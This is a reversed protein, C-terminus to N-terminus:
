LQGRMAVIPSAKMAVHVPYLWGLFALLVSLALCSGINSANLVTTVTEGGFLQILLTNSVHIGAHSIAASALSGFACGIIGSTVTLIATEFLFQLAVFGRGAGIARLTGTEMVRSLASIVLTNAIVIFGTLLILIIGINLILRLYFVMVVMGGAATRWNVAEVPWDKEKFFRNLNRIVKRANVTGDTQCVLYTWVTSETWETEAERDDQVAKGFDQTDTEVGIEDGADEFLGEIGSQLGDVILDISEPDVDADDRMERIQLLDRLTDPDVLGIQQLTPNNVEYRFIGTVPVSRITALAGNSWILKLKTGIKILAVDHSDKMIWDLNSQNLMVGKEGKKFARGEVIHLGDMMETYEDGYVGFMNLWSHSDATDTSVAAYGTIQPIVRSIGETQSVADKVDTYPVLQPIAALNGTVPTSDGFLSLPFESHPRIVVDGTFSRIFTKEMGNDTGDFIANAIVLLAISFSIFLIIVLSSKRSLVNRLAFKFAFM